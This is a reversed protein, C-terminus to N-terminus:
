RAKTGSALLSGPPAKALLKGPVRHGRYRHKYQIPVIEATPSTHRPRARRMRPSASQESRPLLGSSFSRGPRGAARYRVSAFTVSRRDPARTRTTSSGPAVRTSLSVTLVALIAIIALSCGAWRLRSM